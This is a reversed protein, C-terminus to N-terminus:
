CDFFEFFENSFVNESPDNHSPSLNISDNQPIIAFKEFMNSNNQTSNVNEMAKNDAMRNSNVIQENVLM